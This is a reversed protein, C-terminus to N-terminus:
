GAVDVEVLRSSGKGEGAFGGAWKRDFNQVGRGVFCCGKGTGMEDESRAGPCRGDM